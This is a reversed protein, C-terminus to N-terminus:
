RSLDCRFNVILEKKFRKEGSIKLNRNSLATVIAASSVGNNSQVYSHFNYQTKTHTYQETTRSCFKNHSWQKRDRYLWVKGDTRSDVQIFSHRACPKRAWECRVEVSRDEFLTFSLVFASVYLLLVLCLLSAPILHQLQFSMKTKSIKM